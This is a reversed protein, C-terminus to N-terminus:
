ASFAQYVVADPDLSTYHAVDNAELTVDPKYVATITGTVATSDLDSVVARAALQGGSYLQVYMGQAVRVSPLTLRVPNGVVPKTRLAVAGAIINDVPAHSALLIAVAVVDSMLAVANPNTSDIQQFLWDVLLQMQQRETYAQTNWGPLVALSNLTVAGQNVLFEAWRLRDAPLALSIRSYLCTAVSSIQQLNRATGISIETHVQDSALLDGVAVVTQLTTVQATWSQPALQAPQFTARQAQLIRITQQSSSYIGAIAPGYVGPASTASSAQVPLQLQMAARAQMNAALNLLLSPRELQSIQTRIPPFWVVPAERLLGVIERLEPPIAVSQKLCAPVPSAPNAPVLQRSPVDGGAIVTRPRTFAVFEVSNALVGARTQNVGNVRATEDALLSEVFSLNQRKQTLDNQLQTLLTRASQYDAQVDALATACVSLFDRYRQIRGEISRLLQTHQELVHIGVSFVAGEDSDSTIPVNNPDVPSAVATLITTLRSQRKADNSPRLDAVLPAPTIQGDVSIPLDDIVVGLNGVLNLAATRNGISYYLAEQSAPQQLRSAITLTRLNLQGGVVPTQQTIDIPTAPQDPTGVTIPTFAQALAQLGAAPAVPTKSVVGRVPQVEVPTTVTIPSAIKTPSTIGTRAASSVQSLLVSSAPSFAAPTSQKLVPHPTTSPAPTTATSPTSPTRSVISALYNQINQATAAATDGSAINALIPSVALRTADAAGLVNQRYRYIDTQTTLFSLDLLDNAQDLKANIRDIFHQLGYQDLDAWDDDGILPLSVLQGTLGDTYTVTYSNAVAAHLNQLAESLYVGNSLTTGFDEGPVPTFVSPGDRGAIEDATLGANPDIPAAALLSALVNSELTIINRHQLVANRDSKAADMEQLFLPDIQETLLVNPDYVADPLPVVIEIVESKTPDLPAATMGAQVIGETEELYAPTVRVSWNSPCWLAVQHIFDMTYPPLIGAPPLLAFENTILGPPSSPTIDGGLQAAFQNLRATALAPQVTLLQEDPSAVIYRRRPLGGTRVVAFRDVFLLQAATQFGALGVPVGFFEWPLRDDPALALEANFVTYALRNRWTAAPLAPPMALGPAAAPWTALALRTGDVIQSDGFANEAPDQDCSAGLNGSVIISQSGTDVSSGPAQAVVAQLLLVGAWAQAAPPTYQSFDTLYAGSQGDIVALASLKTRMPQLLTVDQGVASIGYGPAVTLVPDAATVDVMLDLGSVVGPTVAQGLMNLRGARYQQESTLATDSLARGTFLALRHLWGADVQELLDPQIGILDEGPLADHIKTAGM